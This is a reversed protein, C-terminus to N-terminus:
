KKAEILNTFKLLLGFNLMYRFQVARGKTGNDRLVETYYDYILNTGFNLFFYKLMKMELGTDWRLTFGQINTYNSFAFLNSWVRMDKYFKQEFQAEILWGWRGLWHYGVGPAFTGLSALYDSQVIVQQFAVPSLVVLFRTKETIYRYRAGIYTYNYAPSMFDSIKSRITQGNADESYAEGPTFQTTFFNGLLLMSWHKTLIYDLSTLYSLLDDTKRYPFVAEPKYNYLAGYGIDIRNLWFLREGNWAWRLVDKTNFSLFSNGGNMWNYLGVNSLGATIDFEYEWTPLAFAEAKIELAQAASPVPTQSFLSFSFLCLFSFFIRMKM